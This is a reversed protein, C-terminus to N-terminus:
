LSKSLPFKFHTETQLINVHDALIEDVNDVKAVYTQGNDNPYAM